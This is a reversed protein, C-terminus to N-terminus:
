CDLVHSVKCSCITLLCPTCQNLKLLLLVYQSLCLLLLFCLWTHGQCDASSWFHAARFYIVNTLSNFTQHSPPLLSNPCYSVFLLLNSSADSYFNLCAASYAFMARIKKNLLFFIDRVALSPASDSGPGM